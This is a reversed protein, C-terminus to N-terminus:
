EWMHMASSEVARQPSSEEVLRYHMMAILAHDNDAINVECRCALLREQWEVAAASGRM